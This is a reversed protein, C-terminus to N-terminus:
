QVKLSKLGSKLELESKRCIVAKVEAKATLEQEQLVLHKCSGTHFSFWWLSTLDTNSLHQVTNTSVGQEVPESHRTRNMFTSNSSVKIM